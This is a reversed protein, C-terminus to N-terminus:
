SKHTTFDELIKERISALYEVGNPYSVRRLPVQQVLHGFYAFRQQQMGAAAIMRAVFSYRMLEILAEQPPVPTIEVTPGGEKPDRRQPLYLCGLPQAMSCFTGLGHPGIPIRRKAHVPHVRRLDNYQGLFHMAQDPWLRMQPYGPRGWFVDGDFAVPLIDDTLLPYGLQMLGAALSSKGGTNSALFAVAREEVVVASAHLVPVKQRELWFALVTGLLLIEVQDYYTLDLLNCVIRERSLCFDAIGAFRIIDSSDVCYLEFTIDRDNSQFRRSYVPVIDELGDTLEGTLECTFILDPQKANAVPLHNICPYDSALTLGFM